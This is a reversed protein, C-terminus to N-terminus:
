PKLTAREPPNGDVSGRPESRKVAEPYVFGILRDCSPCVVWVKEKRPYRSTRKAQQPQGTM